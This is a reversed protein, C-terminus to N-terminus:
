SSIVGFEKIEIMLTWYSTEKNFCRLVNYVNKNEM